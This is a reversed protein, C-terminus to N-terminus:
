IWVMKHEEVIFIKHTSFSNFPEDEITMFKM